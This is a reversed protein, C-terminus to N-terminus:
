GTIGVDKVAIKGGSILCYGPKEKGSARFTPPNRKSFDHIYDTKKGKDSWKDSRYIIHKVKGFYYSKKTEPIKLIAEKDAEFSSWKEWLKHARTRGRETTRWPNGIEPFIWLKKGNPSCFLDANKPKWIRGDTFGIELCDGLYVVKSPLKM